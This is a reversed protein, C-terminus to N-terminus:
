RSSSGPERREQVLVRPQGEPEHADVRRRLAQLGSITRQGRREGVVAPPPCSRGVGPRARRARPTGRGRDASRSPSMTRALGRAGRHGLQRTEVHQRFASEAQVDGRLHQVRPHREAVLQQVCEPEPQGVHVHTGERRTSCTASVAARPGTRRRAPASRRRARSGRPRAPGRRRALGRLLQRMVPPCNGMQGRRPRVSASSASRRPAHASRAGWPLARHRIPEHPWLSASSPVVVAAAARRPRSSRCSPIASIAFASATSGPTSPTNPFAALVRLRISRIPSSRSSLGVERAPDQQQELGLRERALRDVVLDPFLQDAAVDVLPHAVAGDRPEEEVVDDAVPARDAHVERALVRARRSRSPAACRWAACSACPATRTRAAGAAATRTAPRPGLHAPEQELLEARRRRVPQGVREQRRARRVRPRPREAGVVLEEPDDPVLRAARLELAAGPPRSASVVNM